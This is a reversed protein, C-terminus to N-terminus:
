PYEPAQTSDAPPDTLGVSVMYGSFHKVRRYVFGSAADRQTALSPDSIAENVCVSAGTRCWNISTNAATAGGVSKLYLGVVKSPSFRVDPSFEVRSNGAADTWSKVQFTMPATAVSCPADWHAPGYGSVGPQCIAYAPITVMNDDGGFTINSRPDVIATMRTVGNITSSALVTVGTAFTLSASLAAPAPLPAASERPSVPSDSCAATFSIAVLSAATISRRVITRTM